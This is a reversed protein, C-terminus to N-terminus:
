RTARCGRAAASAASSGFGSYACSRGPNASAVTLELGPVLALRRGAVKRSTTTARCRRHGGSDATDMGRICAAHQGAFVGRLNGLRPPIQSRRALCAEHPTAGRYSFLELLRHPIAPEPVRRSLATTQIVRWCSPRIRAEPVTVPVALAASVGGPEWSVHCMDARRHYARIPCLRLHLREPMWDRCMSKTAFAPCGRSRKAFPLAPFIRPQGVAVRLPIRSLVRMATIALDKIYM